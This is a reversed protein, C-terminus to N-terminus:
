HLHRLSTALSASFAPARTSVLRVILLVLYAPEMPRLLTQLAHQLVSLVSSLLELLVLLASTHLQDLALDAYITATRVLEM